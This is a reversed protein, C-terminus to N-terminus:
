RVNIGRTHMAEVLSHADTPASSHDSLDSVLAPIQCSVLFEAADCVLRRQKALEEPPGAHKVGPSFVDPNFRVDFDAEKLSGVALAAKKIVDKTNEEAREAAISETVGEVMKKAEAAELEKNDKEEKEEKGDEKAAPAVAPVAPAAAKKEAKAKGLQQLQLAAYKLFMMYRNEVFAEVLEQRLTALKHKHAIPFGMEKSVAGRPIDEEVELFNVDPPFTRLLDLIYHRGDNGIIGKCEVSSCLEVEEGAENLVKHPLIKLAQAAKSLLDLYKPNSQVTSGFDISGYVVSQEQERELIGPIISQATVRYGRYDVLVTGLTYLGPLDQMSYVRVGQLDNRPAVHAAADGGIDKYHDRVDFGLSFFINNWIFMQMKADEGPNIAMVNGDIVAQAGRTAAAVFDSHVKFIARERLLREPLNKRPLERTTQLEENWDRTQGPIHEEYGLRSSFADEARFADQTHELGPSSWSFVQYPTAVREFPHRATRKKQLSAFNRKFSPSLQNLLEILSHSLLSPSAPRPNFEEENSLNVYFGWTAGTVHFYKGELTQVILYLLDGTLKRHPPPPNWGSMTLVKVCQPPKPEGQALAKTM